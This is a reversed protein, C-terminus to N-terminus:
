YVQNHTGINLLIVHNKSVRMYVIRIDGTVSFSRFNNKSGTLQHDNLIPNTPNKQFLKLRSATKTDLKPNNLIRKKYSKKFAPHLEVKM